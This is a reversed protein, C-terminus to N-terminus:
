EKARLGHRQLLKKFNSRDLGALRAAASVTGARQMLNVLYCREFEAASQRKAETLPEVPAEAEWTPCERVTAHHRRSGRRERLQTSGRTLIEFIERDLQTSRKKTTRARM